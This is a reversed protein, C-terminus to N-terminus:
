KKGGGTTEQVPTLLSAVGHIIGVAECGGLTILLLWGIAGWTIINAKM